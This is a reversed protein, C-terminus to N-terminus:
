HYLLVRGNSIEKVWPRFSIVIELVTMDDKEVEKLSGIISYL